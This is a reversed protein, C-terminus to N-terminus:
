QECSLFRKGIMSSFTEKCSKLVTERLHKSKIFLIAPFFVGSIFNLNLTMVDFTKHDYIDTEVDESSLPPNWLGFTVMGPSLSLLLVALGFLSSKISGISFSTASSESRTKKSLMIAIQCSLTVLLTTLLLSIIMKTSSASPCHSGISIGTCHCFSASREYAHSAFNGVSIACSMVVNFVLFFQRFFAENLVGVTRFKCAYLYRLVTTEIHGLALLTFLFYYTHGTVQCFFVGMPGFLFVLSIFPSGYIIIFLTYLSTVAVMKNILTRRNDSVNNEYWIIGFNLVSSTILCVGHSVTYFWKQWAPSDHDFYTLPPSTSNFSM